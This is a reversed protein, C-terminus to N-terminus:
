ESGQAIQTSVSAPAASSELPAPPPWLPVQAPSAPSHGDTARLAPGPAECSKCSTGYAQRRYYECVGQLCLLDNMGMNGSSFDLGRSTACFWVALLHTKFGPRRSAVGPNGLITALMIESALPGKVVM